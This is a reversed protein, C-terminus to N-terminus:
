FIFYKNNHVTIHNTNLWTKIERIFYYLLRSFRTQSPPTPVSVLRVAHLYQYTITQQPERNNNHTKKQPPPPPLLSANHAGYLVGTPNHKQHGQQQPPYPTQLVLIWTEQFSDYYAYARIDWAAKFKVPFFAAFM